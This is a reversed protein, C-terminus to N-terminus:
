SSSNPSTQTKFNPNLVRYYNASRPGFHLLLGLQLGTAALYNRLQRKAHFSLVETSKIEVIVRGEVLMDLKQLGIQEGESYIPLPYERQVRLGRKRLARELRIAYLSELFGFGFENYSEYFGGIIQYSLEKEVICAGNSSNSGKM